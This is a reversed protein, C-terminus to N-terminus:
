AEPPGNRRREVIQNERIAARAARLLANVQRRRALFAASKLGHRRANANGKPPGRPRGTRRHPSNNPTV